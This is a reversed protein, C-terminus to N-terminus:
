SGVIRVGKILWNMNNQLSKLSIAENASCRKIDNRDFIEGSFIIRGKKIEWKAMDLLVQERKSINGLVEFEIIGQYIGFAHDDKVEYANKYKIIDMYVENWNIKISALCRPNNPYVENFAVFNIGLRACANPVTQGNQHYTLFDVGAARITQVAQEESLPNDWSGTWNILVEANPNVRLVGLTFANIGQNIEPNMFPAVYGIKNTKTHLGALIGALYSAEFSLISYSGNTYLASISEITCFTIKPYIKEFEIINKLFCGNAFIVNNIGRKSLEDATKRCLDTDSSINECLVLDYNLENCVNKVALYQSRNWGLQNKEGPIVLAIQRRNHWAEAGFQSISVFVAALLIIAVCANLLYFRRSLKEDTSRKKEEKSM